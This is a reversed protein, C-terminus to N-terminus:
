HAELWNMGSGFEAELPVSLEMANEMLRKVNQALHDKEEKVCDFVLEDHVQLIIKSELKEEQMWNHVDIM